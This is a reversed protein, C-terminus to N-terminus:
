ATPAPETWARLSLRAPDFIAVLITTFILDGALGNRLFTWTPPYGPWGTTNAQVWGAFSQPYAYLPTAASSSWAFTNALLYFLISGLIPGGYLLALPARHTLLTGLGGLLAYFALSVLIMTSFFHGESQYNWQLFALESLAIAAVGLLWSWRHPLYAAGVFALAIIPTFNPLIAPHVSELLRLLACAVVLILALLGPNLRNKM